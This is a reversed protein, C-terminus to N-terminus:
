VGCARNRLEQIREGMTMAPVPMNFLEWIHSPSNMDYNVLKSLCSVASELDGLRVAIADAEFEQDRLTQANPPLRHPSSLALLLKILEVVKYNENKEGKLGQEVTKWFWTAISHSNFIHACEHALIFKIENDTFNKLYGTNVLIIGAAYTGQLGLFELNLDARLGVAGAITPKTPQVIVLAQKAGLVPFIRDVVSQM